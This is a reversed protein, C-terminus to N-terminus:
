LRIWNQPILDKTQQNREENAFWRQPAIVLKDINQNLWAGWWSFSSNAIINHKCISMLYMDLHMDSTKVVTAPFNDIIRNNLLWETDDSFLFFHPSQIRQTILKIANQYYQLSCIGHFSNTANDSIYDGRRFHVSVSNSRLMLEKTEQLLVNEYLKNFRSQKLTFDNLIENRISDFYKECQWYGDLYVNNGLSLVKPHFSFSGENVLKKQGFLRKLKSTLDNNIFNDVDSNTAYDAKIDFDGLEFDRFTFHERPTRDLLFSLDLKLETSNIMSMQRGIAYQFMQNGLGGQLKVVIM